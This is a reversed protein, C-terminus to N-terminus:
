YNFVNLQAHIESDSQLTTTRHEIIIHVDTQTIGFMKLMKRSDQSTVSNLKINM